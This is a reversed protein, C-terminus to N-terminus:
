RIGRSLTASSSAVHRNLSEIGEGSEVAYLRTAFLHRANKVKLEKVPNWSLPAFDFISSSVSCFSEIGEGSEVSSIASRTERSIARVKLEKVPNWKGCHPCKYGRLRYDKLEKM